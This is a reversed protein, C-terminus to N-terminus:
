KKEKKQTKDQDQAQPTERENQLSELTKRMAKIRDEPDPHTKVRPQLSCASVGLLGALLFPYLSVCVGTKM